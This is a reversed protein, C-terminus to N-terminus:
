LVFRFNDGTLLVVIANTSYAPSMMAMVVRGVMGMGMEDGIRKM